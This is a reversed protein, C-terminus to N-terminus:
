AALKPGMRPGAAAHSGVTLDYPSKKELSTREKQIVQTLMFSALMGQRLFLIIPVGM